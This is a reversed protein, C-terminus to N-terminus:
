GLTQTYQESDAAFKMGTIVGNSPDYEPEGFVFGDTFMHRRGTDMEVVTAHVHCRARWLEMPDNGCINYLDVEWVNPTAEVTGVLKGSNTVRADRREGTTRMKMSGSAELRRQTTSDAAVADGAGGNWTIYIRGGVLPPCCAGTEAM